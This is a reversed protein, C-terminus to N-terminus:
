LDTSEKPYLTYAFILFFAGFVALFWDTWHYGTELASESPNKPDYYVNVENGPIYIKSYYELNQNNAVKFLGPNLRDSRYEIGDVEYSYLLIFVIKEREGISRYYKYEEIDLIIGKTAPWSSSGIIQPWRYLGFFIATLSLFLVIM